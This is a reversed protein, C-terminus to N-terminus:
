VICQSHLTHKKEYVQTTITNKVKIKNEQKRKFQKCTKIQNLCRTFNVFYYFHQFFTTLYFTDVQKIKNDYKFVTLIFRM